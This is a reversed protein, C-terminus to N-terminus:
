FAFFVLFFCCVRARKATSATLPTGDRKDRTKASPLTEERVPRVNLDAYKRWNTGCTDCLINSPLGKPAKWWMKSERTRCAGCTPTKSPQAIISSEDDSHGVHQGDQVEALTRYQLGTSKPSPGSAKRRKNAEGLKVSVFLNLIDSLCIGVFMSRGTAMSVSLKM